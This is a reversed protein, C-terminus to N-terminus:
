DNWSISMMNLTNIQLFTIGLPSTENDAPQAYTTLNPTTYRSDYYAYGPDLSGPYRLMIWWDVDWNRNNKCGQSFALSMVIAFVILTSATSIKKFSISM